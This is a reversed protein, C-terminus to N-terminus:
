NILKNILANILIFDVFFNILKCQSRRQSKEFNKVKSSKHLEKERKNRERLAQITLSVFCEIFFVM